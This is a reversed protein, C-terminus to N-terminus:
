IIEVAATEKVLNARSISAKLTELDNKYPSSTLEVEKQTRSKPAERHKKRVPLPSIEQISVNLIDVM